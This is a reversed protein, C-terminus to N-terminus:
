FLEAKEAPSALSFNKETRVNNALEFFGNIKQMASSM